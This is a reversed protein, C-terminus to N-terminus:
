FGFSGYFRYGQMNNSFGTSFSTLITSMKTNDDGDDSMATLEEMM